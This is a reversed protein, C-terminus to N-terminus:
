SKRFLFTLVGLSLSIITLFIGAAWYVGRARGVIDTDRVKLEAIDKLMSELRDNIRDMEAKQIDDLKMRFEISRENMFTQAREADNVAKKFQALMEEYKTEDEEIILV